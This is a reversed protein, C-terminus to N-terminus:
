SESHAESTLGVNLDAAKAKELYRKALAMLAARIDEDHVRKAAQLLRMADRRFSESQDTM